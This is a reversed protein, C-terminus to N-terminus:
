EGYYFFENQLLYAHQAGNLFLDQPTVAAFHLPTTTYPQGTPMWDGEEAAPPALFLGQDSAALVGTGRANAYTAFAVVTAGDLGGRQSWHVGEDTSIWVRQSDAVYLDPGFSADTAYLAQPAALAPPTIATWAGLTQTAAEYAARYLFPDGGAVGAAYLANWHYGLTESYAYRVALHSAGTALPWGLAAPDQWTVGGDTSLAPGACTAALVTDVHGTPSAVPQRATDSVVATWTLGQDESRYFGTEDATCGGTWTLQAGSYLRGAAEEFLAQHAVLFETRQPTETVLTWSGTRYLAGDQALAMGAFAIQSPHAQGYVRRIVTGDALLTAGWPLEPGPFAVPTWVAEPTDQRRHLQVDGSALDILGIEGLDNGLLLPFLGEGFTYLPQWTPADGSRELRYVTGDSSGVRTELGTALSRLLLSGAVGGPTFAVAPGPVTALAQWIEEPQWGREWLVYRGQHITLVQQATTWARVPSVIPGRLGAGAQQWSAGGDSSTWLQEPEDDRVLWLEGAFASIWRAPSTDIQQWRFSQASRQYLGDTTAALLGAPGQALARIGLSPDLPFPEAATGAVLWGDPPLYWGEALDLPGGQLSAPAPLPTAPPLTPTPTPARGLLPLYVMQPDTDPTPTVTPNGAGACHTLRVEDLLTQSGLDDLPTVGGIRLLVDEERPWDFVLRHAQWEGAPTSADPAIWLTKLVAGSDVTLIQARVPMVIFFPITRQWHLTFTLQGAPLRVPQEVAIQKGALYSAVRLEAVYNGAYADDSPLRGSQNGGEALFSWGGDAEFGPSTLLQACSEVMPTPENNNGPAIKVVFADRQGGGFTAQEGVAVPFDQSQTFGTLYVTGTATAAIGMGGDWGAGGVYSSYHLASGDAQLSLVVADGQGGGYGTQLPQVEPFQDGGSIGTVFLRGEGDLALDTGGDVQGGGLRSAFDLAAGAAAFRVVFLDALYRNGNTIQVPGSAPFDLSDTSGTIYAHGEGDVVIANGHDNAAGGLYTSYLLTAGGSDLKSVFLDTGSQPPSSQVANVTPFNTSNTDGLVYANGAGDVAIAAASDTSNGGLFTSYRLAGNGDFSAVFADGAYVEGNQASGHQPQRANVTPFDVSYTSGALYLHGEGDVAVGNAVDEGSGGLFTSYSLAAGDVALKFLVADNVGAPAAQVPDVTPFDPSRSVGVVFAEGENNVAIATASDYDDGGIYATFLRNGDASLKSVFIDIDSFEMSAASEGSIYVAGSADVAITQGTEAADDGWYTSFDLTPDILLPLAPDTAGLAFGIAGDAHIVYAAAVPLRQDGREQWAVPAAEVLRRGDASEGPPLVVLEGAPEVRAVAGEYRWRIRRYDAGPAVTYSSKLQGGRGSIHLDIGEYLSRYVLGAHAPIAPRWGDADRGRFYSVMETRPGVPALTALPNAAMFHMRLTYPPQPEGGAAGASLTLAIEQAAFRVTGHPSQTQFRVEAAFQGQNPIFSLPQQNLWLDLLAPAPTLTPRVLVALALLLVAAAGLVM